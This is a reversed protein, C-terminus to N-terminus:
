ESISNSNVKYKNSKKEDERQIPVKRVNYELHLIITDVNLIVKKPPSTVNLKFKISTQNVSGM